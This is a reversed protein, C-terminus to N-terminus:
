VRRYKGSNDTVRWTVITVGANFTVGNLTSTGTGTTTAGTMTYTLSAVGCDDTGVADWGTGNKTYTNGTVTCVNQLPPCYSFDPYADIM